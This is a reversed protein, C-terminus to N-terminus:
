RSASKSKAQAIKHYTHALQERAFALEGEIVDGYHAANSAVGWTEIEYFGQYGGEELRELWDNIPLIGHGLQCRKGDFYGALKRDGLQVLAVYDIFGPLAALAVYKSGVHFLDLALGIDVPDYKSILELVDEIGNLFTWPCHSKFFMPELALRVGYDAAVPIISNLATELLRISHSDTHGNRAGPHIILLEAGLMGALEVTKSRTM